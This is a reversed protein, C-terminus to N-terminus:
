QGNAAGLQKLGRSICGRLDVLFEPAPPEDDALLALYIELTLGEVLLEEDETPFKVLHNRVRLYLDSLIWRCPLPRGSKERIAECIM